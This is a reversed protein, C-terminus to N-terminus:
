KRPLPKPLKLTALTPLLDRDRTAEIAIRSATARAEREIIDMALRRRDISRYPRPNRRM